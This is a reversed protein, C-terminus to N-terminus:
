TRSGHLDRKLTRHVIERMWYFDVPKPAYYVIGFHRTDREIEGSPTGTTIIIPLDHKRQRLINIMEFGAATLVSTDLILMGVDGKRLCDIVEDIDQAVSVTCGMGEIVAALDDAQVQDADAIVVDRESMDSGM